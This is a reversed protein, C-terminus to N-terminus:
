ISKKKVDLRLLYGPLFYGLLAATAVTLLTNYYDFVHFILLSGAWNIIAGYVFPKFKFIRGSIFIWLGYLVLIVGLGHKYGLASFSFIIIGLSVLFATLVSLFIELAVIKAGSRKRCRTNYIATIIGALPMLTAWGIWHFTVGFKMLAYQLLAAAGVFGGWLMYDFGDSLVREKVQEIMQTIVRLSDEYSFQEQQEM